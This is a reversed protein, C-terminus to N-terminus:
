ISDCREAGQIVILPLQRDLQQVSQDAVVVLAIPLAAGEPSSFTDSDIL